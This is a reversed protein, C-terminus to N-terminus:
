KIRGIPEIGGGITSIPAPMFAAPDMNIAADKIINGTTPIISIIFTAAPIIVLDAGCNFKNEKTKGTVIRPANIIKYNEVPVIAKAKESRM